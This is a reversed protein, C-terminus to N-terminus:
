IGIQINKQAFEPLGQCLGHSGARLSTLPYKYVGLAEPAHVPDVREVGPKRGGIRMYVGRATSSSACATTTSTTAWSAALRDGDGHGVDEVVGSTSGDIVCKKYRGRARKGPWASDIRGM